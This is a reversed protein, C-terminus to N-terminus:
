SVAGRLALNKQTHARPVSPGKEKAPFRPWLCLADSSWIITGGRSESRLLTVGERGSTVFCGREVHLNKLFPGGRLVCINM